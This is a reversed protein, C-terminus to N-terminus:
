GTVIVLDEIILWQEKSPDLWTDDVRLEDYKEKWQAPPVLKESEFSYIWEPLVILGGSDKIEFYFSFLENRKKLM